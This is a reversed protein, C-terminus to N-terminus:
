FIINKIEPKILKIAMDCNRLFEGLRSKNGDFKNLMKEAIKLSISMKIEPKDELVFNNELESNNELKPYLSM